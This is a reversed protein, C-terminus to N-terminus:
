TLRTPSDSRITPATPKESPVSCLPVRTSSSSFTRNHSAISSPTVTTRRFRKSSRSTGCTTSRGTPPRRSISTGRRSRVSISRESTLRRVLTPSVSPSSTTRPTSLRATLRVSRSTLELSSDDQEETEFASADNPVLTNFEIIVEGDDNGDEFSLTANYKTENDGIQIVGEDVNELEMEIEVVDGRSERIIPNEFSIEGRGPEVVTVTASDSATTDTVNFQLTVDGADIDDFNIPAQADQGATIRIGDGDTEGDDDVDVNGM